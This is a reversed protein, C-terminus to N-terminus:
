SIIVLVKDIDLVYSSCDYVVWSLSMATPSEPTPFVEM